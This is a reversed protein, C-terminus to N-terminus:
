FVFSTGIAYLNRERDQADVTSDRSFRVASLVITQTEGFRYGLRIEYKTIQDDRIGQFPRTGGRAIEQPYHNLGRGYVLGVSLERSLYHQYGASWSRGIFYLNEETRSYTLDRSLSARARGFHSIRATLSASGVLGDYDSEPKEPARLHMVGIRIEGQVLASPDFRLGPLVSWGRTDRGGARDEFDALDYRSELTFITKPLIRVEGVVAAVREDRELRRAVHAAYPDNGSYSFSEKGIYARFGLRGETNSRVDATIANRETPIRRDIEENPRERMLAHREELSLIVPDLLAIGRLRTHSNWHDLDPQERDLDSQERYAVYDVEQSLFIGGRDRMLMLMKLGPTITATYGGVPDEGFLYLNDDYGVNKLQLYPQVFFPGLRRMDETSLDPDPPMGESRAPSGFPASLVLLLLGCSTLRRCSTM